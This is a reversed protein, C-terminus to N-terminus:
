TSVFLQETMLNMISNIIAFVTALVTAQEIIQRM